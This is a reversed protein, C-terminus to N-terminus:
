TFYIYLIYGISLAGIVLSPYFILKLQKKTLFGFTAVIGVILMIIAIVLLLYYLSTNAKLKTGAITLIGLLSFAITAVYVSKKNKIM